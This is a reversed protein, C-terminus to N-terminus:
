DLPVQVPKGTQASENAALTVALTKVADAYSTLLISQDHLRIAEIFAHDIDGDGQHKGDLEAVPEPFSRLSSWEWQVRFGDFLFDVTNSGGDKHLLCSSTLSFPTGDALKMAISYVDPIDFNARGKLTGSGYDAYVSTIEQGTLYRVLDVQHTTQEVLQGGSRSMVGWWPVGPVGGWRNAVIMGTPQSALFRRLRQSSELYRLSYGSTSIVGAREIAARVERAKDLTLAVPKEVFLHIGKSAAILEADSHAFPPVVVYLADLREKELMEHHNSYARAKYQRAMAQALESNTDCVAVIDATPMADVMKLHHQGMGGTGIFGVQLKEMNDEM